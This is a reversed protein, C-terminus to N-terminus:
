MDFDDIVMKILFASVTYSALGFGWTFLCKATLSFGTENYIWLFYAASIILFAVFILIKFIVKTVM